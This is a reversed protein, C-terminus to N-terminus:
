RARGVVVMCDSADNECGATRTWDSERQVNGDAGAWRVGVFRTQVLEGGIDTADGSAVAPEVEVDGASCWSM